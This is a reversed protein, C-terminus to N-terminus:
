QGYWLYSSLNGNKTFLSVYDPQGFKLGIQKPIKVIKMNEDWDKNWTLESKSCILKSRGLSTATLNYTHLM